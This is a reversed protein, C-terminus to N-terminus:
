IGLKIQVLEILESESISFYRYDILTDFHCESDQAILKGKVNWQNITYSFQAVQSIIPNAKTIHIKM